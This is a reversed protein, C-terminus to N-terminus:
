NSSWHKKSLTATQVKATLHLDEAVKWVTSQTVSTLKADQLGITTPRFTPIVTSIDDIGKWYQGGVALNIYSLEVAEIAFDQTGTTRLFDVFLGYLRDFEGKVSDYHPYTGARRRWNLLM